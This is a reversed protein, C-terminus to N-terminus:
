LFTLIEMQTNILLKQALKKLTTLKKLEQATKYFKKLTEKDSVETSAVMMMAGEERLTKTLLRTDIKCIGMTNHRKLFASLSETARFNSYNENYHRCLIGKAFIGCSEM